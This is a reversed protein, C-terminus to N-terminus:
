WIVVIILVFREINLITISYAALVESSFRFGRFVKCSFSSITELSVYFEGNTLWFMGDSLYGDQIEKFFILIGEFIAYFLYLYRCRKNIRVSSRPLLILTLLTTIFGAPISIPLFYKVTHKYYWPIEFAFLESYPLSFNSQVMVLFRFNKLFGSDLELM